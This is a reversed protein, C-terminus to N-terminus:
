TEPYNNLLLLYVSCRPFIESMWEDKRVMQEAGDSKTNSEDRLMGVMEKCANKSPKLVQSATEERGAPIRIHIVKIKIPIIAM